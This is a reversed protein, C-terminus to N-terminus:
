NKRSSLYDQQIVLFARGEETKIVQECAALFAEDSEQYARELIKTLELVKKPPSGKTSAVYFQNRLLTCQIIRASKNQSYMSDRLQKEKNMRSLYTEAPEVGKVEYGERFYARGAEHISACGNMLIVVFFSILVNVM